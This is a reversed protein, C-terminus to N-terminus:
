SMLNDLFLDEDTKGAWYLMCSDDDFQKGLIKLTEPYSTEEPLNSKKQSKIKNCMDDRNVAVSNGKISARIGMETLKAIIKSQLENIM